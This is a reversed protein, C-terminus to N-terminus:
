KGVAVFRIDGEGSIRAATLDGGYVAGTDVAIRGEEAFPVDFVQHGFAVWQDDVREVSLFAPTGWKLVEPDQRAMAVVPDAGAHVVWLNGSSWSTPLGHVWDLLDPGMADRLDGAADLLPAAIKTEASLARTEIGFSALTELGGHRLWRRARGTPDALFDMMMQEHNGALAIVSGPFSGTMEAVFRLVEASAPGRDIYDGVFVIRATQEQAAVDADIKALLAGLRDVCGHVDGIVYTLADPKPAPWQPM